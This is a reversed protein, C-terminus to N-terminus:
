WSKFVMVTALSALEVFPDFRVVASFAQHTHVQKSGAKGSM